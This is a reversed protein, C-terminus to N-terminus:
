GTASGTRDVGGNVQKPKPKKGILDDFSLGTVKRIERLKDLTPEINGSLYDSITAQSVDILKGFAGQTMERDDLWRKLAKVSGIM